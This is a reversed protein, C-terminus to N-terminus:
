STVAQLQQQESDGVELQIRRPKVSEKWPLTLNLMGHRYAAKVKGLDVINPVVITQEYRAYPADPEEPQEGRITLTSGSVELTVHKPDIGPIPLSVQWADDTTRVVTGGRGQDATRTPLDNWFQNFLRDFNSHFNLMDEIQNSRTMGFM